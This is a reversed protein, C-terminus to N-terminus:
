FISDIGTDSHRGFLDIELPFKSTGLIKQNGGERRIMVSWRVVLAIHANLLSCSICLLVVACAVDM